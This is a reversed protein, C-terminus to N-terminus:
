SFLRLKPLQRLVLAGVGLGVLFSILGELNGQVLQLAGFVLGALAVGILLPLVLAIAVLRFEQHALPDGAPAPVAASEPQEQPDQPQKTEEAMSENVGPEM